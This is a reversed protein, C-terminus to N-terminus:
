RTSKVCRFGIADTRAHMSIPQRVASRLVPYPDRWSGGRMVREGSKKEVDWGSGDAPAGEYNAHWADAVYEWLYGHMDYLGWPNPELAGVAPDNGAANGTHWAYKDLLGAQNETDGERTAKEGFSYPTTTRARCCYEWEAETPLRVVENEKILKQERLVDTCRRCFLDADAWSVMEVSNRPGQWRSPNQGMLAEYLNQPVEYKAIAFPRAMTVQHVPREHEAGRSSGMRFTAPFKGAGPTIEVFEQSFKQLLLKQDDTLKNPAASYSTAVLVGAVILMGAM